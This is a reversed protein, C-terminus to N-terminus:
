WFCPQVRSMSNRFSDLVHNKLDAEDRPLHWPRACLAITAAGDSRHRTCSAPPHFTDASPPQGSAGAILTRTHADGAAALYTRVRTPTRSQAHGSKAITNKLDLFLRGHNCSQQNYKEVAPQAWPQAWAGSQSMTYVSSYYSASM